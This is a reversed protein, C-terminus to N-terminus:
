SDPDQSIYQQPRQHITGDLAKQMFRRVKYIYKEPNYFYSDFHGRGNTIWLRKYGQAAEYIARVAPMPAKEDKKCVILMVPIKISNMVAVTNIPVMCTDVQSADMKAITKLALKIWSQVYPNYAYRQLLSRGPLAVDYGFVSFRLQEIARAIVNETSEFPCDWVAADFLTQDHAQALISAVAGMSFGYAIRKTHRLEPDAKIYEVIGQVDYMENYGFSCCQGEPLEGHARFDITVTNVPQNGLPQSFLANALFRIDNKNCMFGHFIFVTVKAGPRRILLAKRAIARRSDAGERAFFTITEEHGTTYRPRQEGLRNYGSHKHWASTSLRPEDSLYRFLAFIISVSVLLIGGIFLLSKEKFNM